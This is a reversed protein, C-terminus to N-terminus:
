KIAVRDRKVVHAIIRVCCVLQEVHAHEEAQGAHVSKQLIVLLVVDM